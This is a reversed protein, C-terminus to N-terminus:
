ELDRPLQQCGDAVVVPIGTREAVLDRDCGPALATAVLAGDELEFIGLETYIRSVVGRGTVPLTLHEVIKPTGDRGVHRMMVFITPVGVALDMAGGVGPLAEGNTWNALDGAASVQFAGMVAIDLHGGRIISFSEAHSVYSGGPRLAVGKKGADILDPDYDAEGGLPAFGLIGNESHLVVEREPPIHDAVSTPLGIGLNVFSGEPLDLSVERALQSLELGVTM